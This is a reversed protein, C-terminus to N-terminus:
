VKVKAKVTSKADIVNSVHLIWPASYKTLLETSALSTFSYGVETSGSPELHIYDKADYV